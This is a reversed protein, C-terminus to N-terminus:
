LFSLRESLSTRTKYVHHMTSIEKVSQDLYKIVSFAFYLGSVILFFLSTFPQSPRQWMILWVLTCSKCVEECNECQVLFFVETFSAYILAGSSTNM